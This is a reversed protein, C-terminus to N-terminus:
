DGGARWDVPALGLFVGPDVGLARAVRRQHLPLRAYLHDEARLIPDMKDNTSM